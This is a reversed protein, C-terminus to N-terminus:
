TGTFQQQKSACPYNCLFGTKLQPMSLYVLCFQFYFNITFLQHKHKNDCVANQRSPKSIQSTSVSVHNDVSACLTIRRSYFELVICTIVWEVTISVTYVNCKNVDLFVHCIPLSITITQLLFTIWMYHWLSLPLTICVGQTMAECSM